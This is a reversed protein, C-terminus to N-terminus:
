NTWGQFKCNVFFCKDMGCNIYDAIRELHCQVLMPHKHLLDWSLITRGAKSAVEQFVQSDQSDFSDRMKLGQMDKAKKRTLVQPIVDQPRLSTSHKATPRLEGFIREHREAVVSKLYVVRYSEGCHVSIARFYLGFLKRTLAEHNSVCKKLYVSVVFTANLM